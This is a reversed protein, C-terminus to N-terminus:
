PWYRTSNGTEGSPAKKKPPGIQFNHKNEAHYRLGSTSRSKMSLRDGCKKCIATDAETDLDFLVSYKSKKPKLKHGSLFLIFDNKSRKGKHTSAAMQNTINDICTVASNVILETAMIHGILCVVGM